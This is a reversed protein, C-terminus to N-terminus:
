RMSGDPYRCIRALLVGLESMGHRMAEPILSHAASISDASGDSRKISAVETAYEQPYLAYIQEYCRKINGAAKDPPVTKISTM